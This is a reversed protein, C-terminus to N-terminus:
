MDYIIFIADPFQCLKEGQGLSFPTIILREYGGTFPNTSINIDSTGQARNFVFTRMVVRVFVLSCPRRDPHDSNQSQTVDVFM